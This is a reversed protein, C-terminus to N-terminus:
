VFPDISTVNFCGGRWMHNMGDPLAGLLCACVRRRVARTTEPPRGGGVHHWDIEKDASISLLSLSFAVSLLWNESTHCASCAAQGCMDEAM